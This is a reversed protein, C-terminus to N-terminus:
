CVLSIQSLTNDMRSLASCDFLYYGRALLPYAKLSALYLRCSMGSKQTTEEVAPAQKLTQAAEQTTPQESDIATQIIGDLAAEAEHAIYAEYAEVQVLNAALSALAKRDLKHQTLWDQMM